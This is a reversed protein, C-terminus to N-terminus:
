KKATFFAVEMDWERRANALQPVDPLAGFDHEKLYDKADEVFGPDGSLVKMHRVHGDRGIEIKLQVVADIGSGPQDKRYAIEQVTRGHIVTPPISM